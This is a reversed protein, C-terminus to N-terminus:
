CHGLHRRLMEKIEKLEGAAQLFEHYWGRQSGENMRKSIQNINNGIRNVASLLDRSGEPHLVVKPIEIGLVFKRFLKQITEGYSTAIAEAKQWESPPLRLMMGRNQKRKKMPDNTDM